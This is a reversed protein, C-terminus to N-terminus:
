DRGTSELHEDFNKHLEANLSEKAFDISQRAQLLNGTRYLTIAQELCYLVTPLRHPPEVLEARRTAEKKMMQLEEEHNKIHAQLEAFDMDDMLKKSIMKIVDEKRM